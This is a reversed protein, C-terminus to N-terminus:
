VKWMIDCIVRNESFSNSLLFKTETKEVFKTEFM